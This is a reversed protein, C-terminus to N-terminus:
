LSAPNKTRFVTLLSVVGVVLSFVKRETIHCVVEWRREECNM